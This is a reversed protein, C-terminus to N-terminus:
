IKNKAKQANKRIQKNNLYAKDLADGSDKLSFESVGTFLKDDKISDKQNSSDMIHDNEQNKNSAYFEDKKFSSGILKSLSDCQNSSGATRM